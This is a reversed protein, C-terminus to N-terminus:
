IFIEGKNFFIKVNHPIYNYIINVIELPLNDVKKLLLKEEEETVERKTIYKYKNM